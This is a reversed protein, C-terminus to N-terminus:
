EGRPLTSQFEDDDTVSSDVLVGDIYFEYAGNVASDNYTVVVHHWEDDNITDTEIWV